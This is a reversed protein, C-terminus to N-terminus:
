RKPRFLGSGGARAIAFVTKARVRSVGMELLDHYMYLDADKRTVYKPSMTSYLYDHLVVAPCPDLTQPLMSRALWPLSSANSCFGRPVVIGRLQVDRVLIDDCGLVSYSCGFM